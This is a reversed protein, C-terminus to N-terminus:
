VPAALIPERYSQVDVVDGVTLTAGIPGIRCGMGFMGNGEMM